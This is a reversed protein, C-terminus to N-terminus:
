LELLLQVRQRGPDGADLRVPEAPVEAQLVTIRVERDDRVEDVLGAQLFVGVMGVM